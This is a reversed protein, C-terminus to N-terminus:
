RRTWSGVLTPRYAIENETDDMWAFCSNARKGSSFQQDAQRQLLNLDAIPLLPPRSILEGVKGSYTVALPIVPLSTTGEQYVQWGDDGKRWVSWSGQELVRIQRIVESGFRGKPETVYENIRVQNM